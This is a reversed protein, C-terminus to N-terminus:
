TSIVNIKGDRLVAASPSSLARLSDMKREAKLEQVFGITVDLVIVAALVGGDIYDGVGFGLAMAFILVLIMANSIQKMLLTTWNPGGGGELENLPYENKLEAVRMASLGTEINTGLQSAVDD